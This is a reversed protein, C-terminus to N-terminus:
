PEPLQYARLVAEPWGQGTYNAEYLIDGAIALTEGGTSWVRSEGTAPDLEGLGIAHTTRDDQYDFFLRGGDDVALGIHFAGRYGPLETATGAQGDPDFSFVSGLSSVHLDGGAGVALWGARQVTRLFTGDLDFVQTDLRADDSVFVERGNTAIQIADAFQADDAGFRGWETVFEHQPDFKQVRHNGVDAVFLSGDPAFALAGAGPCDLCAPRTFEFEGPGDGPKGFSGKFTGDSAFIWIVDDSALSVWIDGTLPDVAPSYTAPYRGTPTPEGASEWLLELAELPAETALPTAPVETPMSPQPPPSARDTAAPAGTCAALVVVVWGTAALGHRV